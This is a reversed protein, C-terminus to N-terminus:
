PRCCNAVKESFADDSARARIAALAGNPTLGKMAEDRVIWFTGRTAGSLAHRLFVWMPAADPAEIDRVNLLV